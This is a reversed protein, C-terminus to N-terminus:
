RREAAVSTVAPPTAREIAWFVANRLLARFAPNKFDEVHGLSTYFVRAGKNTNTWAVPETPHDPITGVLLATASQALPRTKYLSAVSETPIESADALIPHAAAFAREIRTKPGNEHHGQYNGGLVDADFSLWMDHGDPAGAAGRLSFAHSSTRIAVLPKGAALHERIVALQGSTPTRRRVSLLVLDASLAAEIAPFDNPSNPNARIITCRVGRPTLEHEAFAPLTEGTHYEDEGIVIAVHPRAPEGVVDSSLVSGCVHTELHDIVLDTGRGHGVFPSKRSNYMSDTLDRVLVVNKGNKAMQRLGFPRGAVCMNTHVGMVLVNAIGRSEMLNWIESGSDSVADKADIRIADIQRTWPGGTKCQPQCDCGGDSDDIPLKPEGALNRCWADIDKPLNAAKPADQARRRGPTGQYAAMCSSPAHIILVGRERAASVIANMRPAMETVRRTAGQCWHQNWMDCIVIATKSADWAVRQERIMRDFSTKGEKSRTRVMLELTSAPSDKAGVGAAGVLTAVISAALISSM